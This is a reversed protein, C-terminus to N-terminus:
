NARLQRFGETLALWSDGFDISLGRFARDRESRGGLSLILRRSFEPCLFPPKREVIEVALLNFSESNSFRCIRALLCPMTLSSM